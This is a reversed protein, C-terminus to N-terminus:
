DNYLIKEGNYLRIILKVVIYTYVITSIITVLLNMISIRSLLLEQLLQEFNCVPILYYALSVDLELISVFMPILGLMTIFSIKSQAEKYSKSLSTLFM